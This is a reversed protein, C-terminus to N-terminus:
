KLCIRETVERVRKPWGIITMQDYILLSDIVNSIYIPQHIDKKYFAFCYYEKGDVCSEGAIDQMNDLCKHAITNNDELILDIDFARSGAYQNYEDLKILKRIKQKDQCILLSAFHSSFIDIMTIWGLITSTEYFRYKKIISLIDYSFSILDDLM